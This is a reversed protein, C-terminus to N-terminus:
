GACLKLEFLHVDYDCMYTFLCMSYLYAPRELWGVAAALDAHGTHHSIEAARMGVLLRGDVETYV